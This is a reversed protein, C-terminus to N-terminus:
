RCPSRAPAGSRRTLSGGHVAKEDLLFRLEVGSGPVEQVVEPRAEVQIMEVPHAKHLAIVEFPQSRGLEFGGAVQDKGFRLDIRGARGEFEPGVFDGERYLVERALEILPGIGRRLADLDYRFPM